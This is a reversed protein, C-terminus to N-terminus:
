RQCCWLMLKNGSYNQKTELSGSNVQDIQIISKVALVLLDDWLIGERNSIPWHLRLCGRAVYKNITTKSLSVCLGCLQFEAIVQEILQMTTHCNGELKSREMAVLTTARVHALNYFEKQKRSNSRDVQIQHSTKTKEIELSPVDISGFIKNTSSGAVTATPHANPDISVLPLGSAAKPPPALAPKAMAAMSLAEPPRNTDGGGLKVAIRRVQMQLTRCAAEEPTYGRAMMASPIKLNVNPDGACFLYLKAANEARDVIVYKKRKPPM